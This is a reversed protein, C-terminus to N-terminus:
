PSIEMNAIQWKYPTTSIEAEIKRENGENDIILGYFLREANNIYLKKYEFIAGWYEGINQHSQLWLIRPVYELKGTKERVSGEWILEIIPKFSEPVEDIIQADCDPLFFQLMFDSAVRARTIKNRKFFKNDTKVIDVQVSWNKDKPSCFYFDTTYNLEEDYIEDLTYLGEAQVVIMAVQADPNNAKAIELALPYIEGLGPFRSSYPGM